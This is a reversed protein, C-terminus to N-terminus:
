RRVSSRGASSFSRLDASMAFAASLPRVTIRPKAM